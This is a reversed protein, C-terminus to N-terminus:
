LVHAPRQYDVGMKAEMKRQIESVFIREKNYRERGHYHRPADVDFTLNRLLM